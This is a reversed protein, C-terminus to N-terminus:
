MSINYFYNKFAIFPLLKPINPTAENPELLGLLYKTSRPILLFLFTKIFCFITLISHDTYLIDLVGFEALLRLTVSVIGLRNLHSFFVVLSFTDDVFILDFAEMSSFVGTKSLNKSSWKSTIISSRNKVNYFSEVKSAIIYKVPYKKHVFVSIRNKHPSRM